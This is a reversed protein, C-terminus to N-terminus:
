SDFLTMLRAFLVMISPVPHYVFSVHVYMQPNAERKRARRSNLDDIAPGACPKMTQKITDNSGIETHETFRLGVYM